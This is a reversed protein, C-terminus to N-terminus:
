KGYVSVLMRACVDLFQKGKFSKLAIFGQTTVYFIEDFSELEGALIHRQVLKYGKKQIAKIALERELSDSVGSSLPSTFIGSSSVCFVPMDGVGTIVGDLNACLAVKSNLYDNAFNAVSLMLSSSLGPLPNECCIVRAEVGRHWLSFGRYLLSDVITLMYSARWRYIRLMYSSSNCRNATLLSDIQSSIDLLELAKDEGFFASYNQNIIELHRELFLPTLEAVHVNQYLYIESLLSEGRSTICDFDSVAGNYIIKQFNM